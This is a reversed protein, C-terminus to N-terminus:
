RGTAAVSRASAAPSGCLKRWGSLAQGVGGFEPSCEADDDDDDFAEDEVDEFAADESADAPPVRRATSGAELAKAWQASSTSRAARLTCRRRRCCDEIDDNDEFPSPPPRMAALQQSSRGGGVGDTSAGELADAAEAAATADAEEDGNADGDCFPPLESEGTGGDGMDGYECCCISSCRCCSHVATFMM